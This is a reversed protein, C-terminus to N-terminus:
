KVKLSQEEETNISEKLSKENSKMELLQDQYEKILVLSNSFKKKFENSQISIYNNEEKLEKITQLSQNLQENTKDYIEGIEMMKNMLKQIKERDNEKLDLIGLSGFSNM